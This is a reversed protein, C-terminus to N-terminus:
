AFFGLWKEVSDGIGGMQQLTSFYDKEMCSFVPSIPSLTSFFINRLEMKDTMILFLLISHHFVIVFQNFWAGEYARFLM